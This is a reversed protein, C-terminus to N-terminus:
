VPLKARTRHQDWPTVSVKAEGHEALRRAMRKGLKVRVVQETGSTDEGTEAWGFNFRAGRRGKTGKARVVVKGACKSGFSDRRVLTVRARRGRRELETAEVDCSISAKPSCHKGPVSPPLPPRPEDRRCMVKELRMPEATMIGDVGWDYLMNIEDEDNVTWVHVGYGDAHARDVFEEDTVPVGQFEIPVQFAKTGEPPPASGLKYGAVGAIGPALDIEPALEHFRELAADNFSAVMIGETRGLENLYAALVEANRLFSQLNTDGSGKIEINIPVDPYRQILEDLELIRFDRKRYGPPPKKEGTRVGRFVYHEAPAETTTNEGPVFWHAADLKRLEAMTMESVAGSGNTTRDVTSDHIVALKGDATAHIDVELMDSGLKMSRDFAYMTASPAETEGGQHTINLTRLKTWDTPGAAAPAAFLILASLTGAFLTAVGRPGRSWARAEQGGCEDRM